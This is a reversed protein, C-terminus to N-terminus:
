VGMGINIGLKRLVTKGGEVFVIYVNALVGSITGMIGSASQFTVFSEALDGTPQEAEGSLLKSSYKQLTGEVAPQNGLVNTSTLKAINGALPPLAGDINILSGKYAHGPGITVEGSAAQTVAFTDELTASPSPLSGSLTRHLSAAWSLGGSQAPIVGAVGQTYETASSVTEPDSVVVNSYGDTADWWVFSAKYDGDALGTVEPFTQTGNVTDAVANGAAKAPTWSLGSVIEANTPPTEAALYVTYYLTAM